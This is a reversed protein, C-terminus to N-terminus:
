SKLEAKALDMIHGQTAKALDAVSKTLQKKANEQEDKCLDLIDKPIITFKLM